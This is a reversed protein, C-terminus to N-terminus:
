RDLRSAAYNTMADEISAYLDDPEIPKQLIPGWLAEGLQSANEAYGTLYIIQIEPYKQHAQRAFEFGNMGPMAIDTIIVGIGQDAELVALAEEGSDALLVTYGQREIASKTMDQVSLNDEVFLIKAIAGSRKPKAMIEGTTVSPQEGKPLVVVVETGEGESSNLLLQGDNDSSFSQATTLGLGTGNRDLKTTFFPDCCKSLVDQSMGCGNDRVTIRLKDAEGVAAVSIKGLGGNANIADDANLILNLLVNVLQGRDCYGYLDADTENFELVTSGSVSNAALANLDKLVSRMSVSSAMLRGQNSLSLLRGALSKSEEIIRLATEISQKSKDTDSVPKLVEICYRLTGLQNNFDHAIGAALQGVADLRNSREMAERKSKLEQEVATRTMVRDIATWLIEFTLGRKPLYYAAGALFADTASQENGQGTLVIVPLRPRLKKLEALVDLGDEGELRMDLLVCDFIQAAAHPVGDAGGSCATVGVDTEGGDLLDAILEREEPSDDILLVSIM